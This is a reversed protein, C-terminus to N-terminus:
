ELQIWIAAFPIMENQKLVSYCELTRIYWRKNILEDMSPCKPQKQTKAVALMPTCTDKQILTLCIAEKLRLSRSVGRARYLTGNMGSEERTTYM